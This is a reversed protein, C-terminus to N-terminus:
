LLMLSLIQLFSFTCYCNFCYSSTLYPVDLSVSIIRILSTPYIESVLLQDLVFIVAKWHRFLYFYVPRGYLCISIRRLFGRFCINEKHMTLVVISPSIGVHSFWKSFFANLKICHVISSMSSAYGRNNRNILHCFVLMDEMLNGFLKLRIHREEKKAM